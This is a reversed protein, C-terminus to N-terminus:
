TYGKKSVAYETVSKPKVPKICISLVIALASIIALTIFDLGYSQTTDFLYGALVPGTTAGLAGSLNIAGFITGHSRLGFLDAIWPSLLSFLGGQALGFLGSFLYFEWLDNAKVLWLFSIMLLVFVLIVTKKYGAKDGLAGILFRGLISVAGIVALIRAARSESIGVDVAHPYIHIMISLICFLFIFFVACVLWFPPKHIAEHLSVGDTVDNVYGNDAFGGDPFLGMQSPDRRLFQSAILIMGSVVAAIVAYSIRWNYNLILGSAVLPMIWTGLGSGMQFVGTMTGRKKVFWRVITSSLAINPGGIGIGIIVGNFFYFEWLTTMRAMQLYGWGMLLGSVSVVLRPGFRDSLRGAIMGFLGAVLSSLAPGGSVMARTWGLEQSIPRFFVGFASLTGWMLLLILSATGVIIYGYFVPQKQPTNM